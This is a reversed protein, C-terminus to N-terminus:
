DPAYGRCRDRIGFPGTGAASFSAPLHCSNRVLAPASRFAFDEVAPGTGSPALDGDGCTSHRNCEISPLGGRSGGCDWDGRQIGESFYRGPDGASDADDADPQEAM